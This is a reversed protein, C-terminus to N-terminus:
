KSLGCGEKRGSTNWCNSRGQKESHCSTYGKYGPSSFLQAPASSSPTPLASTMFITSSYLHQRYQPVRVLILKSNLHIQTDMFTTGEHWGGTTWPTLGGKRFTLGRSLVARIPKSFHLSMVIISELFSTTKRAKTILNARCRFYFSLHPFFLMSSFLHLLRYTLIVTKSHIQQLWPMYQPTEKLSLKLLQLFCSKPLQQLTSCCFTSPVKNKKRTNDQGGLRSRPRHYHM